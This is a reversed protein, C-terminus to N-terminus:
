FKENKGIVYKNYFLEVASGKTLENKNFHRQDLWSNFFSGSAAKSARELTKELFDADWFFKRPDENHIDLLHGQRKDIAFKELGYKKIAKTLLAPGIYTWSEWSLDKLNKEPDAIALSAGNIKANSYLWKVIESNKPLKLLNGCYIGTAEEVFLYETDEFFNESFCFMDTDIWMEGTKIIMAYRFLDSFAAYKGFHTFVEKEKLITNADAKIVGAPVALDMDYVYLKVEHGYYVFSSLAIQHPVSLPKGLWLSSVKTM